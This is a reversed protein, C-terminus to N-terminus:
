PIATGKDAFLFCTIEEDEVCVPPEITGNKLEPVYQGIVVSGAGAATMVRGTAGDVMLLDFALPPTEGAVCTAIGSYTVFVAEGAATTAANAELSGICTADTEDAPIEGASNLILNRSASLDQGTEIQISYKGNQM